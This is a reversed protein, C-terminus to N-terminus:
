GEEDGEVLEGHWAELGERVAFGAIVFGALPDLWAAGTLQFLVLGALTSASLLM